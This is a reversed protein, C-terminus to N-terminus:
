RSRAVAHLRRLAEATVGGRLYTPVTADFLDMALYSPLVAAAGPFQAGRHYASTVVLCPLQARDAAQLGPPSDEVALAEESVVGLAAVAQGYAEPHPKLRTVDDGTVVAAFPIDRFLRDLLVTVWARSGTTAVAVAVERDRLERLLEHVGPRAILIGTHVWSLFHTTKTAHVSRALTAADAHGRGALYAELRRRGGTIALLRGYETVGWEYPLGHDRFALNFARRHGDRETEALTGDVDFVVARLQHSPRTM